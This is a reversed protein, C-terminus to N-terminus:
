DPFSSPTRPMGDREIDVRFRSLEDVDQIQCGSPLQAQVYGGPLVVLFADMDVDPSEIEVDGDIGLRSSASVLSDSSKLFQNSKIAIDGGRGRDAQAKIQGQNLVVFVPDKITINGGPGEGTGVSTTIEGEHLYLLTPTTITIHGGAANQAETSITGNNSL